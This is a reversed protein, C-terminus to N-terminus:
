NNPNKAFITRGDMLDVGITDETFLVTKVRKNEFNLKQFMNLLNLQKQSGVM